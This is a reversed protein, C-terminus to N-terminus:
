KVKRKDRSLKEDIAQLIYTHISVPRLKPQTDKIAQLEQLMQPDLRLSFAKYPKGEEQSPAAAATPKGGQRVFDELSEQPQFSGPKPATTLPKKM